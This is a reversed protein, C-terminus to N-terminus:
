QEFIQGPIEVDFLRSTSVTEADAVVSAPRFDDSDISGSSIIASWKAPKEAVQEPV